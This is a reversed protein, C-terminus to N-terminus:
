PRAAEHWRVIRPKAATSTLFASSPVIDFATDTPSKWSLVCGASGHNEFFRLEIPHVGATLSVTGTRNTFVHLGDNNIVTTTGIVLKSGDDSGLQFTWLGTAPVRITGTLKMGFRDSQAGVYFPRSTDIWNIQAERTTRTPAAWMAPTIDSLRAIGAPRMVWACTLGDTLTSLYPADTTINDFLLEQDVARSGVFAFVLHRYAAADAASVTFGNTHSRWTGDATAGSVTGLVLSKVGSQTITRPIGNHGLDLTVADRVALVHWYTEQTRFDTKRVDVNLRYTSAAPMPISMVLARTQTAGATSALTASAAGTAFDLAFWTGSPSSSTTFTTASTISREGFTGFPLMAAARPVDGWTLALAFLTSLTWWSRRNPLLVM